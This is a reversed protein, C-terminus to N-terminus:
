WIQKFAIFLGCHCRDFDSSFEVTSFNEDRDEGEQVLFGRGNVIISFAKISLVAPTQEVTVDLPRSRRDRVFDAITESTTLLGRTCVIFLATRKDPGWRDDCRAKCVCSDFDNGYHRRRSPIINGYHSGKHFKGGIQKNVERRLRYHLGNILFRVAFKWSRGTDVMKSPLIQECEAAKTVNSTAHFFITM